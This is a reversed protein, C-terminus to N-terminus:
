FRLLIEALSGQGHDGALKIELKSDFTINRVACTRKVLELPDCVYSIETKRYWTEGRKELHKLQGQSAEEAGVSTPLMVYATKTIDKSREEITKFIKDVAPLQAGFAKSFSSMERYRKKSAKTARIFKIAQNVTCTPIMRQKGCTLTRKRGFTKIAFTKNGYKKQLKRTLRATVQETVGSKEALKEITCASAKKGHVHSIGIGVEAQCISGDPMQEGCIGRRYRKKPNPGPKSTSNEFPHDSLEEFHRKSSSRTTPPETCASSFGCGTDSFDEDSPASLDLPMPSLSRERIVNKNHDVINQQGQKLEELPSCTTCSNNFYKSSM